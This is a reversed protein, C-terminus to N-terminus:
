ELGVEFSGLLRFYLIKPDAQLGVFYPRQLLKAAEAGLCFLLLVPWNGVGRGLLDNDHLANNPRVLHIELRSRFCAFELVFIQAFHSSKQFLHVLRHVLPFLLYFLRSIRVYKLFNVRNSASFRLPFLATVVVLFFQHRELGVPQESHLVKLVGAEEVGGELAQVGPGLQSLVVFGPQPFEFIV